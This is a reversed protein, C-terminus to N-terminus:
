RLGWHGPVWLGARNFHGAIWHRGHPHSKGVHKWHAPIIKGEPTTHVHVWVFNPGPKPPRAYTCSISSFSIIVFFILILHKIRNIM